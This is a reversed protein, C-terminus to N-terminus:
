AVGTGRLDIATEGHQAATLQADWWYALRIREEWREGRDYARVVATDHAHDLALEVADRAFGADRALTSFSSRWGHPVHVGDLGLGERYWKSVTSDTIHGRGAASAFVYGRGGTATHWRRLERVITPGLVVKHDPLNAGRVKMKNRPIVWVPQDADLDFEDWDAAIANKMRVPCFAVLRHALRVTPSVLATDARRLVDGLADFTLLAPRKRHETRKPLVERVGAAPNEPCLGKMKALAFIRGVNWAVKGATEVAGRDRIKEIVQAVMPSTIEAVPLNGLAPLVDRELARASTRAHSRSWHTQNKLWTETITAFTANTAATTVAKSLRREAVPDRGERVQARAKDREARADKLGIEPYPGISYVRERGDYRYKLRWSPTGAPTVQLYLGKGDSLKRTDGPARQKLYAKIKLDSLRDTGSVM